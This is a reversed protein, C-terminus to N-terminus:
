YSRCLERIIVDKTQALIGCGKCRVSNERKDVIQQLKDINNKPKVNVEKMCKKCSETHVWKVVPM